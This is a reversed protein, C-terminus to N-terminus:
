GGVGSQLRRYFMVIPTAETGSLQWGCTSCAHEAIRNMAQRLTVGKFTVTWPKPFDFGGVDLVTLHGRPGSLENAAQIAAVAPSTVESLNFDTTRRNFAYDPDGVLRRPFVNLTNEDRSWAYRGDLACVEDLVVSPKGGQLTATFEPDMKSADEAGLVREVSVSIGTSEFVRAFVEFMTQQKLVITPVMRDFPAVTKIQEQARGRPSTSLVITAVLVLANRGNCSRKLSMTNARSQYNDSGSVYVHDYQFTRRVGGVSITQGTVVKFTSPLPQQSIATLKDVVNSNSNTGGPGQICGSCGPVTKDRLERQEETWDYM